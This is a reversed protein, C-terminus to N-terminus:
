ALAVPLSAYSVRSLPSPPRFFSSRHHRPRRRCQFAWGAWGSRREGAVRSGPPGLRRDAVRGRSPRPPAGASPHRLSSSPSRVPHRDHSLASRRCWLDNRRAGLLSLPSVLPVADCMRHALATRTTPTRQRPARSRAPLSLRGSGRARSFATWASEERMCWRPTAANHGGAATCGAPRFNVIAAGAPRAAAAAGGRGSRPSGGIAAVRSGCGACGRPPPPPALAIAREFSSALSRPATRRM